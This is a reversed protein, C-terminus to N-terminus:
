AQDRAKRYAVWDGGEIRPLPAVANADVPYILCSLPEGDARSVLMETRVYLSAQSPFIEEIEDLVPVLAEDIAYIEGLVPGAGADSVLGPHSGFDYLRGAVTGNGLWQPAAIGHKRAAANLDNVEGARLTGYVFVLAM